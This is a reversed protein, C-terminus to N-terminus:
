HKIEGKREALTIQESLFVFPSLQLKRSGSIQQVKIREIASILFYNREQELWARLRHAAVVM